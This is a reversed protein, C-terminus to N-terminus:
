TEARAGAVRAVISARDMESLDRGERGLNALSPTAEVQVLKGAHPAGEAAGCLGVGCGLCSRQENRDKGSARGATM